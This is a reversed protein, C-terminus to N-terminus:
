RYVVEKYVVSADWANLALSCVIDVFTHYHLLLLNSSEGWIDRVWAVSEGGRLKGAYVMANRHLSIYNLSIRHSAILEVICPASSVNIHFSPFVM